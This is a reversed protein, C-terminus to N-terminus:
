SIGWRTTLGICACPVCRRYQIQDCRRPHTQDERGVQLGRAGIQSEGQGTTGELGECSLSGVLVGHLIIDGALEVHRVGGESEGGLLLAAHSNTVFGFPSYGVVVEAPKSGHYGKGGKKNLWFVFFVAFFFVFFFCLFHFLL